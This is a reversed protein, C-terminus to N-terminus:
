LVLDLIATRFESYLANKDSVEDHLASHLVFSNRGDLERLATNYYYSDTEMYDL